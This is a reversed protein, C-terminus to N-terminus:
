YTWVKVEREGGTIFGGPIPSISCVRGKHADITPGGLINVQGSNTGTILRGDITALVGVGTSDPMVTSTQTDIDWLVTKQTGVAAAVRGDPLVCLSKIPENDRYDILHTRKAERLDWINVVGNEHGSVLRGDPLACMSTCIGGAFYKHTAKQTPVDWVIVDPPGGGSALQGNPLLAMCHIIWDHGRFGVYDVGLFSAPRNPKEVHIIKVYMHSVIALRNDPLALLQKSFSDLGWYTDILTGSEASYFDIINETSGVAIVDGIAAALRHPKRISHGPSPSSWLTPPITFKLSM